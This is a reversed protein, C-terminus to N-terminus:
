WVVSWSQDVVIIGACATAVVTSIDSARPGLPVFLSRWARCGDTRRISQISGATATGTAAMMAQARM